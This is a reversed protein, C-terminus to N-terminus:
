NGLCHMCPSTSEPILPLFPNKEFPHGVFFFYRSVRSFSVAHPLSCKPFPSPRFFFFLCQNIVPRFALKPSVRVSPDVSTPPIGFRKIISPRQLFPYPNELPVRGQSVDFFCCRAHYLSPFPDSPLPCYPRTTKLFTLPLKWPVFNKEVLLWSVFHPRPPPFRALCYVVPLSTGEPPDITFRFSISSHAILPPPSSLHCSQSAKGAPPQL